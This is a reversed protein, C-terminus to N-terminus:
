GFHSRDEELTLQGDHREPDGSSAVQLMDPYAWCSERSLPDPGLFHVVTALNNIVSRWNPRIDRSTRFLNYPCPVATSNPFPSMNCSELVVPIKAAALRDAWHIGTRESFYGGDSFPGGDSVVRGVAL